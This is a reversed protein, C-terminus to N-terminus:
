EVPTTLEQENILGFDWGATLLKQPVENTRIYRMISASSM